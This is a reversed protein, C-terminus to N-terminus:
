PLLLEPDDFIGCSQRAQYRALNTALRQPIDKLRTMLSNQQSVAEEYRGAQALAMAHTELIAPAQYKDVLVQSLQVARVGDRLDEQPSAALFRALLHTITLSNPIVKHADELQAGAERYHKGLVAAALYGLRYRENAPESRITQSYHNLAEDFRGTVALSAAMNSRAGNQNPNLQLSMEYNKIASEQDRKQQFIMGLYNHTIIKDEDNMEVSLVDQFVTQARNPQRTELLLKGLEIRASVQSPDLVVLNEFDAIARPLNGKSVFTQARGLLAQGQKADKELLQNYLTIAEDLRNTKRLLFGKELYPETFGPALEIAQDFEYIADDDSEEKGLLNGVAYHIRALELPPTEPQTEKKHELASTLYEILGDRGGLNTIIYGMFDRPNFNELDAAMALVVDLTSITVIESLPALHPDNFQVEGDGRQQIYQRAKEMNGVKRYALGLPYNLSTAGPQLELAKELHTVAKEPQDLASAAMGMGQQLFATRPAIELAKEFIEAAKEPQNLQLLIDGLRGMAFHNNPKLKLVTRFLEAAQPYHNRDRELIGLYYPWKPDQPALIAANRFLPEAAELLSHAQYYEGMRGFAAALQLPTLDNRQIIRELDAHLILLNQRIPGKMKALNPKVLPLLDIPEESAVPMAIALIFLIAHNKM